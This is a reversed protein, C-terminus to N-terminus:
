PKPEERPKTQEREALLELIMAGLKHAVFDKPFCSQGREAARRMEEIREDSLM